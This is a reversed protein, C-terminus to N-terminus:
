MAAPAQRSIEPRQINKQVGFLGSLFDEWDPLHHNKNEPLVNEPVPIAQTM